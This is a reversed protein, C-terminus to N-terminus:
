TATSQPSESTQTETRPPASFAGRHARRSQYRGCLTRAAYRAQICDIQALTCPYKLSKALMRQVDPWSIRGRLRWARQPTVPLKGTVRM